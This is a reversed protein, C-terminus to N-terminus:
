HLIYHMLLILPIAGVFIRIHIKTEGKGYMENDRIDNQKFSWLSRDNEIDLTKEEDQWM